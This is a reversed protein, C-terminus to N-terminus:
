KDSKPKESCGCKNRKCSAAEAAQKTFDSDLAEVTKEEQSNAPTYDPNIDAYKDM